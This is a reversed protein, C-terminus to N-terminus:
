PRRSYMRQLRSNRGPVIVPLPMPVLLELLELLELVEGLELKPTGQKLGLGSGLQERSGM